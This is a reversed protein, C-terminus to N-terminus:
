SQDDEDVLLHRKRIATLHGDAEPVLEISLYRSVILGTMSSMGLDVFGTIEEIGAKSSPALTVRNAIEM